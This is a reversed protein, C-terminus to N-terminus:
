PRFVEPHYIAIPAKGAPAGNQDLFQISVLGYAPRANYSFSFTEEESSLRLEAEPEPSMGLITESNWLFRFPDRDSAESDRWTYVYEFSTPDEGQTFESSVLMSLKSALPTM